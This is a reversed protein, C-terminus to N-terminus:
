PKLHRKMATPTALINRTNLLKLWKEENNIMRANYAIKIIIKPSGTKKEYIGNHELVEKVAKVCYEFCMDFLKIIGAQVIVSYPESLNKCERLNSLTKCFIDYERMTPFEKVM